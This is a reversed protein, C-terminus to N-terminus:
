RVGDADGFAVLMAELSRILPPLDMQVVDWLIDFELDDYGHILRNRLGIVDAWPVGPLRARAEASVHSAAEGVLELLRVLALNFQRDRHFDVRERGQSMAVAERAFALM